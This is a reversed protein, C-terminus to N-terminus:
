LFTSVFVQMYVYRLIHDGKIPDGKYNTPLQGTLYSTYIAHSYKAGPIDVIYTKAHEQTCICVTRGYRHHHYRIHISFPLYFLTGSKEVKYHDFVDKAEKSPWCDTAFMLFKDITFRHPLPRCINQMDSRTLGIPPTKSLDGCLTNVFNGNAAQERHGRTRLPFDFIQM